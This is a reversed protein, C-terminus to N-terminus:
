SLEGEAKRGLLQRLWAILRAVYTQAPRPATAKAPAAAEAGGARASEEIGAKLQEAFGHAFKPLLPGGMAEWMPAMPGSGRVQVTLAIETRDGQASAVYSGGGAVPDGELDFTFDVREPGAWRDVHVKVKVTRVLGGVGVKLVWRSDDESELTFSQFGPMIEAWRAIDRAYAWATDIGADALVSQTTEIM